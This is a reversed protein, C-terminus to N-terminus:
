TEAEDNEEIVRVKAMPHDRNLAQDLQRTTLIHQRLTELYLRLKAEMSLSRDRLIAEMKEDFKSARSQLLSQERQPHIPQIPQTSNDASTSTTNEESPAAKVYRPDILYM